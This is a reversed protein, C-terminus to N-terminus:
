AEGVTTGMSRELLVQKLVEHLEVLDATDMVSLQVVFEGPVVLIRIPADALATFVAESLEMQIDEPLDNKMQVMVFTGPPLDPLTKITQIHEALDKLDAM